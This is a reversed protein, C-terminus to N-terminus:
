HGVPFGYTVIDTGGGCSRRPPPPPLEAAEITTGHASREVLAQHASTIAGYVVDARVGLNAPVPVRKLSVGTGHSRLVVSDRRDGLLGFLLVVPHASCGVLGNPLYRGLAQNPNSQSSGFMGANVEYTLGAISRAPPVISASLYLGGHAGHRQIRIGFGQRNPLRGVILTPTPRQSPLAAPQASSGNSVRTAHGSGGCGCLALTAAAVGLLGPSSGQPRMSLNKCGRLASGIATAAGPLDTV